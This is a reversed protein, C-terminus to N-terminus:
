AIKTLDAIVKAGFKKHGLWGAGLALAHTGILIYHLLTM